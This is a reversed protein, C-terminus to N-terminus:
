KQWNEMSLVIALGGSFVCAVVSMWMPVIFGGVTAEVHFVLRLLHGVAILCLFITALLLAPKM